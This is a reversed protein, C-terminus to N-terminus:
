VKKKLYNLTYNGTSNCENDYTKGDMWVVHLSGAGGVAVDLDRMATNNNSLKKAGSWAQGDFYIYYLEDQNFTECGGWGTDQWFIYANGASMNLVLSTASIPRYNSYDNDYIESVKEYVVEPKSLIDNNKTVHYLQETIIRPNGYVDSVCYYFIHLVGSEDYDLLPNSLSCNGVTHSNFDSVLEPRSWPKAPDPSPDIITFYEDSLDEATYSNQADQGKVKLKIKTGAYNSNLPINWQYSGTNQLNSNITDVKGDYDSYLSIKSVGYPSNAEWTVNQTSGLQWEEGGNPSLLKITPPAGNIVEFPGWEVANSKNGQYDSFIAKVKYGAGLLDAPVYWPMLSQSSNTMGQTGLYIWIEEGPNWLFYDAEKLAINDSGWALLSYETQNKVIYNSAWRLQFGSMAPAQTDPKLHTFFRIGTTTANVPVLFRSVLPEYHSASVWGATSGNELSSKLYNGATDTKGSINYGSLGVQEAIPTSDLTVVGSVGGVYSNADAGM